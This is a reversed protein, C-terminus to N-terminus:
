FKNQLIDPLTRGCSVINWWIRNPSKMSGISLQIPIQHFIM